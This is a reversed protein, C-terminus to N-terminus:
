TMTWINIMTLSNKRFVSESVSGGSITKTQFEIPTTSGTYEISVKSYKDAYPSKSKNAKPTATAKPKDESDDKEAPKETASPRHTRKPAETPVPTPKPTVVPEPTAYGTIEIYTLGGEEVVNNIYRTKGDESPIGFEVVTPQQQACGAAFISAVSLAAALTRRFIAAFTANKNEQTRIM